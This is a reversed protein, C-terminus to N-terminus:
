VDFRSVTCVRYPLVDWIGVLDRYAVKRKLMIYVNLPTQVVNSRMSHDFVGNTTGINCQIQIDDKDFSPVPRQSSQKSASSMSQYFDRRHIDDYYLPHGGGDGGNNQHYINSHVMSNSSLPPPPIFPSPLYIPNNTPTQEYQHTHNHNPSQKRLEEDIRGNNLQIDHIVNTTRVRKEKLPDLISADVLEVTSIGMSIVRCYRGQYLIIDNIMLTENYWFNFGKIWNSIIPQGFYSLLLSISSYGFFIGFLKDPGFYILCTVVFYVSMIFFTLIYYILTSVHKWQYYDMKKIGCLGTKHKDISRNTKHQSTRKSCCCCWLCSLRSSWTEISENYDYHANLLEQTAHHNEDLEIVFEYEEDSESQNNEGTTSDSSDNPQFTKNKKVDEGGDSGKQVEFKVNSKTTTKYGNHKEIYSAVKKQANPSDLNNAIDVIKLENRKSNSVNYIDKISKNKKYILGFCMLLNELVVVMFVPLYKYLVFAGLIVVIVHLSIYPTHILWPPFPTLQITMEKKETLTTIRILIMM